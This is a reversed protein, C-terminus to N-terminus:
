SERAFCLSSYSASMTLCSLDYAFASFWAFSSSLYSMPSYAALVACSLLASTSLALSSSFLCISVLAPSNDIMELLAALSALSSAIRVEDSMNMRNFYFFSSSILETASREM